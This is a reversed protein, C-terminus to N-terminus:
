RSSIRSVINFVADAVFLCGTIIMFLAATGWPNFIMLFGFIVAIIAFIIEIVPTRGMVRGIIYSDRFKMLGSVFFIIGFIIPIISIVFVNAFIVFLGIGIFVLAMIFDPSTVPLRNKFFVLLRYVGYVISICGAVYCIIKLAAVPWIIIGIGIVLQIITMLIFNDRIFRRDYVPNGNKDYVQAM